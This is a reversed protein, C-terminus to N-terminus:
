AGAHITIYISQLFLKYILACTYLVYSIDTACFLHPIGPSSIYSGQWKHAFLQLVM